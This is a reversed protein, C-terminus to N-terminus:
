AGCVSFATVFVPGIQGGVRQGTRLRESSFQRLHRRHIHPRCSGKMRKPSIGSSLLVPIGQRIPDYQRGFLTTPAIYIIPRRIIWSFGQTEAVM